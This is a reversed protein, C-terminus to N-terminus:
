GWHLWEDHKGAVYVDFPRIMDTPNHVTNLVVALIRFQARLNLPRQLPCGYNNSLLCQHYREIIKSGSLLDDCYPCVAGPSVHSLTYRHQVRNIRTTYIESEFHQM